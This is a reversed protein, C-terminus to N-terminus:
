GPGSLHEMLFNNFRSCNLDDKQCFGEQSRERTETGTKKKLHVAHRDGTHLNKKKKAGGWMEM